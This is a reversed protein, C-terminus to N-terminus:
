EQIKFITLILRRSYNERKKAWCMFYKQYKLFFSFFNFNSITQLCSLGFWFIKFFKDLIPISLIFM